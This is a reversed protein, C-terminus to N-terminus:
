DIYYVRGDRRGPAPPYAGKKIVENMEKREKKMEEQAIHMAMETTKTLIICMQDIKTTSGRM